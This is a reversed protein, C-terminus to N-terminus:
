QQNEVEWAVANLTTRIGCDCASRHTSWFCGEHHVPANTIVRVIAERQARLAAVIRQVIAEDSVPAHKSDSKIKDVIRQAVQEDETM